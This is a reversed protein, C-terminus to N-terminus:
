AVDDFFRRKSKKQTPTEVGNANRGLEIGLRARAAPTLGFEQELRLLATNLNSYIAVEPFPQFCRVNGALDKLPYTEGYQEIFAAARRWRVVMRAYREIALADTNYLLHLGHLRAAVAAWATQEDPTLHEPPDPREAPPLPEATREAVLRSGRRALQNTPTPAPGPRGM